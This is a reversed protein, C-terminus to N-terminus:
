AGPEPNDSAGRAPLLPHDLLNVRAGLRSQGHIVLPSRVEGVHSLRGKARHRVAHTVGVTPREFLDIAPVEVRRHIQGQVRCALWVDVVVVM